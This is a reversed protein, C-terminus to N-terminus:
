SGISLNLVGIGFYYTFILVLALRITRPILVYRLTDKLNFDWVGVLYPIYPVPTTAGILMFWRGGSVWDIKAFTNKGVIREIGPAGIKKGIIYAIYLALYSGALVVALVLGGNLGALTGLILALDPGVPQVILELLVALFFIGIYGYGGVVFAVFGKIYFTFLFGLSFTVILLMWFGIGLNNLYTYHPSNKIRSVGDKFRKLM